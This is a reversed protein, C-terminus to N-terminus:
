TGWLSQPWRGPSGLMDLAHRAVSLARTDLLQEYHSIGYVSILMAAGVWRVVREQFAPEVLFAEERAERYGLLLEACFAALTSRSLVESKHEPALYCLVYDCILSGLDRAPDGWLSLEWDLFVVPAQKARGLRVLNAQRLDGHLLSGSTQHAAQAESLAQLGGMAPADRQVQMFLDIGVQSLRAYFDPRMRLFCELLDSDDRFAEALAYRSPSERSFRHLYGLGLGVQRAVSKPYEGSRRHFHHLTEAQSLWELALLGAAPDFAFIRPVMLHSGKVDSLQQVRELVSGERLVGVNGPGEAVKVLFKRKGKRCLVTRNKSPPPARESDDRELGLTLLRADL